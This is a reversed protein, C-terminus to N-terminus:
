ADSAETRTDNLWGLERATHELVQFLAPPMGGFRTRNVDLSARLSGDPQREGAAKWDALMEILSFLSMRAFPSTDGGAAALQPEEAPMMHLVHYQVHHDNHLYHHKLAAGLSGISADYEPTGYRATGVRDFASLEPEALKSADHVAARYALNDIAQQMLARVRDIHALTDPRSDYPETM